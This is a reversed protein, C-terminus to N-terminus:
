TRPLMLPVGNPLSPTTRRSAEARYGRVGLRGGPWDRPGGMFVPAAASAFMRDAKEVLQAPVVAVTSAPPRQHLGVGATAALGSLPLMPQAPPLSRRETTIDQEDSASGSPPSPACRKGDVAVARRVGAGAVMAVRDRDTLWAGIAAALADADLRALTRRITTEAPVAVHDPADRRAGPAARVPQLADAAWEAIAAISRAGALGVAAAM